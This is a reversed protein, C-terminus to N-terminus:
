ARSMAPAIAAILNATDTYERFKVVKGNKVTFVHSFEADFPKRTTKSTGSYCGLAVVVDGQAVFDRPEFREFNWAQEVQEFFRKVEPKGKRPGGMPLEAPGFSHWDIGDSVRDLIGGIDKRGFAAYADQVLKVNNQENM